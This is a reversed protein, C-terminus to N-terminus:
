SALSIVPNSPTSPATSQTKHWPLRCSDYWVDKIFVKDLIICIDHSFRSGEICGAQVLSVAREVWGPWKELAWLVEVVLYLTVVLDIRRNSSYLYM